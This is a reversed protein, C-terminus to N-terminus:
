ALVKEMARLFQANEEALGVTVRLHDPLGYNAVPRVIVGERLLQEYLAVAPRGCDFLIFNGVSDTCSLGLGALGAVLQQMGERNVRLTKELFATDELAALAAAQAIYNVNFPHRVRHLLEAVAPSSVAYGVRLGALGCAKSFTRTVILNPCASLWQITDPYRPEAVYEFYAEDVVVLVHDPLDDIFARLEEAALWTGTPNNPNAIFVVRTAPGVQARMATLDHGFAPG